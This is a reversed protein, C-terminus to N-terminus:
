LLPILYAIAPNCGWGAARPINRNKVIQMTKQM